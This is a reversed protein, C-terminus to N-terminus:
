DRMQAQNFLYLKAQELSYFEETEFQGFPYATFIQCSISRTFGEIIATKTKFEIEVRGLFVEDYYVDLHDGNREIKIATLGSPNINMM